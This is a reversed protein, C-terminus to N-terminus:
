IYDKPLFRDNSRDLNLASLAGSRIDEFPQRANVAEFAGTLIM